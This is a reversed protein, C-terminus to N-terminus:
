CAVRWLMSSEESTVIRSLFALVGCEGACGCSVGATTNKGLVVCSVDTRSFSHLSRRIATVLKPAPVLKPPANVLLPPIHILKSRMCAM